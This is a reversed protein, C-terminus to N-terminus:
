LKRIEKKVEDWYDDEWWDDSFEGEEDREILERIVVLACETTLSKLVNTSVVPLTDYVESYLARTLYEAREKPTM